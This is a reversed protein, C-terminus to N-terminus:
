NRFDKNYSKNVKQYENKKKGFAAFTFVDELLFSESPESVARLELIDLREETCLLFIFKRRELLLALIPSTCKFFYCQAAVAWLFFFLLFQLMRGGTYIYM